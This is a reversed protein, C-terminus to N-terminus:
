RLKKIANGKSRQRQNERLKVFATPANVNGDAM